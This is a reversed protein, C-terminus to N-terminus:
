CCPMLYSAFIHANAGTYEWIDIIMPYTLVMFAFVILADKGIRGGSARSFLICFNILAGFLLLLALADTYFANEWNGQAVSWFWVGFRGASLMHHDPGVYHNDELDDISLTPNTMAFGFAFFALLLYGVVFYKNKLFDKVEEIYGTM